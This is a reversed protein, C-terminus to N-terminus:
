NAKRLNRLSEQLGEIIREVDAPPISLFFAPGKRAAANEPSLAVTLHLVVRQTNQSVAARHGILYAVKDPDVTFAGTQSETVFPLAEPERQQREIDSEIFRRQIEDCFGEVLNDRIMARTEASPASEAVTKLLDILAAALYGDAGGGGGESKELLITVFAHAAKAKGLDNLQRAYEAPTM